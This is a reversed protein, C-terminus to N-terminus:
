LSQLESTHEESRTVITVAPSIETVLAASPLVATDILKTGPLAFDPSVRIVMEPGNNRLHSRRRSPRSPGGPLRAERASDHLIAIRLEPFRNTPVIVCIKGINQM